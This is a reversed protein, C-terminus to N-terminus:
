VKTSFRYGTGRVTQIYDAFGFPTLAKRLRRIHVDVTREEVYVNQGWVRDLVQERTYVREPNSVFFNLLRYETPGLKVAEGNATVRQSATDVELGQVEIREEAGGPLVRRLVAQIRAILEATSFPKAIYDDSGTNLGRVRDEEEARATLMIIPLDRLNADARIERAFEIGSVGPLMWDLLILDPRRGAISLRADQVDAAETVTLGKRELAFRVMDRIPAEDEVVLIHKGQM